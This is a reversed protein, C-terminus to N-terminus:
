RLEEGGLEASELRHVERAKLATWPAKEPRVPKVTPVTSLAKTSSGMVTMEERGGRVTSMVLRMYARRHM